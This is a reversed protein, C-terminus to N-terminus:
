HPSPASASQPALAPADLFRSAAVVLLPCISYHISAVGIERLSRIVLTGFGGALGLQDGSPRHILKTLRTERSGFVMGSMGLAGLSALHASGTVIISESM